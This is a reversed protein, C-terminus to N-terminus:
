AAAEKLKKATAEPELQSATISAPKKSCLHFGTLNIVPKKVKRGEQDIYEDIALRGQVVVERGKTIHAAVRDGVGNWAQVDIWMTQPDEKVTSFDRVAVSFKVVKKGSEFIKTTPKQGVHGVITISNNM